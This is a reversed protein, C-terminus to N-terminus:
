KSKNINKLLGTVRSKCGMAKMVNAYFSLGCYMHSIKNLQFIHPTSQYILHLKKRIIKIYLQIYFYCIVIM